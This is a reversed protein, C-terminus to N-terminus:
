PRGARLGDQMARLADWHGGLALVAQQPWTTPDHVKYEPGAADLTARLLQPDARALLAWNTIGAGQLVDEVKPGIGEVVKLDDMVVPKGLKAQAEELGPITGVPTWGADSELINEAAGAREEAESREEASAALRAELENIRAQLQANVAPDTVSSIANLRNITDIDRNRLAMLEQVQAKAQDAEERATSVQQEVAAKARAEEAKSQYGWIFWGVAIGLGFALVMWIFIQGAVYLM